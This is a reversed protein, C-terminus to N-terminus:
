SEPVGAAAFTPVYELIVILTLSPVAEAESAGKLMATFAIAVPDRVTFQFGGVCFM